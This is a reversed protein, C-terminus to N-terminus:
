FLTQEKYKSNVEAPQKDDIWRKAGNMGAMMGVCVGNQVIDFVQRKVREYILYGKYEIPTADTSIVPKSDAYKASYFPNKYTTM